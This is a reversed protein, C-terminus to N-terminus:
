IFDMQHNNQPVSYCGNCITGMPKFCADWQHFFQQIGEVLYKRPQQQLWQVMDVWGFTCIWKIQVDRM